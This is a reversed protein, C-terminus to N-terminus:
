ASVAAAPAAIPLRRRGPRCGRLYGLATAAVALVIGAAGQLHRPSRTLGRGLERVAAAPLIRLVYGRETELADDAGVMAAVAAKSVGEGYCRKIVYRWTLRDASVRHRVIATPEFIILSGSREQRLRICLETEECGLPVRGVRGLTEAFGATGALVIRRFSMNCGMLNRVAVPHDPQGNYSCGVVWDLEGWADGDAAPYFSPRGTTDSPWTPSAAGGVGIVAPDGYHALLRALWWPDAQADDDLFLVVDGAALGVGTNRAGSLGKRHGNPVVTVSGALQEFAARARRLLEENHDIVVILETPKQVGELASEVAASLDDWRDLTYACIVVSSTTQQDAIIM